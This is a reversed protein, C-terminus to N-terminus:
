RHHRKRVSLRGGSTMMILYSNRVYTVGTKLGKAVWDTISLGTSAKVTGDIVWGVALGALFIVIGGGEVYRMEEQDMAVANKPKVGFRVPDCNDIPYKIATLSKMRMM